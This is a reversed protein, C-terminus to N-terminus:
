EEAPVVEGHVTFRRQKRSMNYRRMVVRLASKFSAIPKSGVPNNDERLYDRIMRAAEHDDCTLSGEVAEGDEVAEVFEKFKPNEWLKLYTNEVIDNLTQEFRGRRQNILDAVTKPLPKAIQKGLDNM